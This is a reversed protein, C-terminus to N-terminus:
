AYVSSMFSPIFTVALAAAAPQKEQQSVACKRTNWGGQREEHLWVGIGSILQRFVAHHSPLQELFTLESAAHVQTPCERNQNVHYVTYRIHVDPQMVKHSENMKKLKTTTNKTNHEEQTHSLVLKHM